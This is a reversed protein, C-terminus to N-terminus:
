CGTRDSVLMRATCGPRRLLTEEVTASGGTRGLGIEDVTAPGGTRGVTMVVCVRKRGLVTVVCVGKRGSGLEVVTATGDTRGVTMEVCVGKRGMRGEGGRGAVLESGSGIGACNRWGRLVKVLTLRCPKRRTGVVGAM